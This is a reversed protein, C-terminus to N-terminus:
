KNKYLRFYHKFIKQIHMFIIILVITGKFKKKIINNYFDKYKENGLIINESELSVPQASM